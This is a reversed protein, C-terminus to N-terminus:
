FKQHTSGAAWHRNRDIVRPYTNYGHGKLLHLSLLIEDTDDRFERLLLKKANRYSVVTNGSLGNLVVSKVKCPSKPLNSVPTGTSTGTQNAKRSRSSDSQVTNGGEHIVM